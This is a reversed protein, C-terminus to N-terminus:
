GSPQETWSLGGDASRLILGGAGFKWQVTSDPAFTFARRQEIGSPLRKRNQDQRQVAQASLPARAGAPQKTKEAPVADVQPAASSQVEVQEPAGPAAPPPAPKAKAFENKAADREPSKKTPQVEKDLSATRDDKIKGRLEEPSSLSNARQAGSSPAPQGAPLGA